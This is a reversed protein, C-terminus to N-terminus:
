NNVIYCKGYSNKFDFNNDYVRYPDDIQPETITAPTWNIDSIENNNYIVIINNLEKKETPWDIRYMTETNTPLKTVDEKNIYLAQKNKQFYVLTSNDDQSKTDNIYCNYLRNAILNNKDALDRDNRIYNIKNCIIDSKKFNTHYPHLQIPPRTLSKKSVYCNGYVDYGFATVDYLSSAINACKELSSINAVKGDYNERNNNMVVILIIIVIIIIILIM